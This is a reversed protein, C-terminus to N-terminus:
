LFALLIIEKLQPYEKEALERWQKEIAAYTVPGQMSKIVGLQRLSEVRNDNLALALAYRNQLGTAPFRQAVNKLNEIDNREMKSTPKIRAALSMAQLQTLLRIDPIDYTSPTNGIRMAEFRAIRFDEELLVYEYAMWAGSSMAFATLVGVAVKGLVSTRAITGQSHLIGVLFCAPILFYAYAYPFELMSHIGIPLLMAICGWVMSNSRKGFSNFGFLVIGFVIFIAAPIGFGICIDLLLNHSYTFPASVPYNSAINNLAKPLQGWGWGLWPKQLVADWIQAWMTLRLNGSMASLRNDAGEGWLVWYQKFFYLWLWWFALQVMLTIGSSIVISKRNVQAAGIVTWAMLSVFSILGARSESMALGLTLLLLYVFGSDASIAKRQRLYLTSAVAMVILTAAHNPQGMNGGPRRPSPMPNVLQSDVDSGLAQMLMVWVTALGAALVLASFSKLCEQSAGLNSGLILALLATVSYLLYVAFDGAYHIQGRAYQTLILAAFIFIIFVPASLTPVRLRPSVCCKYLASVYVGVFIVAESHLSVWPLLHLPQLWGLGVLSGLILTTNRNEM